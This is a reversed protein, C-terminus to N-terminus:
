NTDITIVRNPDNWGVTLGFAESMARLPLLTRGNRIVPAADLKVTDKRDILMIDSGITVSVERDETKAIVQGTKDNWSVDAGLKEFVTRLPVMARGNIIVPEQDFYLREGNFYVFIKVRDTNVVSNVDFKTTEVLQTTQETSQETTQVATQVAQNDAYKSKIIDQLTSNGAIVAYRFHIDGNIRSNAANYDMEESIAKANYWRSSTDTVGVAKYDALGIYLKTDCNKLTDVWWDTVTKYDAAAYGMEWYVQPAIYDIWGELAWKRTDAYLNDYSGKGRTDSGLANDDKNAWIGCPSIGFQINSNYSKITDRLQTILTDVNNRRWDAKDEDDGYKAYSSSDNFDKGPYFYDDMHIGDVDYRTIIEKVGDTVLQRVEPLAPDYYYNGNSYKVCYEPHEKAPNGDALQSLSTVTNNTVRYPNIWAHLQINRKHAAEVWYELPDFDDSPAVGQSGTLYESWPYIDSKYIANSSDRVQLFVANFGLRQCNDLIEDTEAKLKEADKTQKTPFDLNKTTSVWVGRMQTDSDSTSTLSDAEVTATNIKGIQVLLVVTLMVAIFINKNM